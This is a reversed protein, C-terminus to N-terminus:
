GQRGSAIEPNLERELYIELAAVWFNDMPDKVNFLILRAQPDSALCSM